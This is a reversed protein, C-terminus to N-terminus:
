GSRYATEAFFGTLMDFLPTGVRKGASIRINICVTDAEPTAPAAPYLIDRDKHVDTDTFIDATFIMPAASPIFPSLSLRREKKTQSM